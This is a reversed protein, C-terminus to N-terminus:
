LNELHMVGKATVVRGRPTRELLEKEILLPEYVKQIAEEDIDSAISPRTNLIESLISHTENITQYIDPTNDLASNKIEEAKVIVQRM